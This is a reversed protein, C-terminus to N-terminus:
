PCSAQVAVVSYAKPGRPINICGQQAKGLAKELTNEQDCSEWIIFLHNEDGTESTVFVSSAEPNILHPDCFANGPYTTVFAGMDQGHCDSGRYSSIQFAGGLHFGCTSLVIASTSARRFYM